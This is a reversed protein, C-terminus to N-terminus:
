LQMTGIFSSCPPEWLTREHRAPGTSAPSGIRQSEDAHIQGNRDAREDELVRDDRRAAAEPVADFVRVEDIQRREAANRHLSQEEGLALAMGRRADDLRRRAHDVRDAKLADAHMSEDLL